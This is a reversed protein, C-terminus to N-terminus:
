LNTMYEVLTVVTSFAWKTLLFWLDGVVMNTYSWHAFALRRDRTNEPTNRGFCHLM